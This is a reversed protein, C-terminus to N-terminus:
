EILKKLWDKESETVEGDVACVMLCVLVLDDKLGPDVLGILDVLQDMMDKYGDPNDLGAAQFVKDTEEFTLERGLLAELSGRMAVFEGESLVGDAAVACLIFDLLIELPDTDDDVVNSLGELISLSKEELIQNYTEPDLKEFIECLMDFNNMCTDPRGPTYFRSGGDMPCSSVERASVGKMIRAPNGAVVTNPPVDHTVVSGAGVVSNEGVTVGPLIIAGAGIWCNRCLHIPTSVVARRDSPDIPHNSTVLTVNPGLLVDDDVTIGGQDLFTCGSNIFVNRGMSINRGFDTHFPLVVFASDDIGRVSLSRLYSLVEEPSRYHSNMEMTVMAARRYGEEVLEYDPDTARIVEGSTMRDYIHM